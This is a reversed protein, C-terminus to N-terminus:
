KYDELVKYRIDVNTANLVEIRLGKFGIITSSDKQLEYEIDQTFAPRAIENYFERFSIKIRDNIKGQYLVTYKFSDTMDKTLITILEYKIPIDIKTLEEKPYNAMHTFTNENGIDVLCNNNESCVMKYNLKSWKKLFLSKENNENDATALMIGAGVAGLLLWTYNYEKSTLENPLEKLKVKYSVYGVKEYLNEGVEALSIKNLEPKKLEKEIYNPAIKNTCGIFINSILLIFFISKIFNKM